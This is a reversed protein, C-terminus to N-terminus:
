NAVVSPQFNFSKRSYFIIYKRKSPKLFSSTKFVFKTEINLYTELISWFQSYWYNKPNKWFVINRHCIEEWKIQSSSNIAAAVDGTAWIMSPQPEQHVRAHRCLLSAMIDLIVLYLRHSLLHLVTAELKLLDVQIMQIANSSSEKYRLKNLISM